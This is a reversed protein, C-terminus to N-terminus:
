MFVCVIGRFYIVPNKWSYKLNNITIVNKSPKTKAKNKKYIFPNHKALSM